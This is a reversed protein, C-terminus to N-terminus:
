KRGALWSGGVKGRYDNIEEFFDFQLGREFRERTDVKYEGGGM